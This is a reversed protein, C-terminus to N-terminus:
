IDWKIEFEDLFSSIERVIFREAADEIEHVEVTSGVLQHWEPVKQCLRSDGFETQLAECLQENFVAVAYNFEFNSEDNELSRTRVIKIRNLLKSSYNEVSPEQEMYGSHLM